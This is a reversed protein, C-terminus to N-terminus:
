TTLYVLMQGAELKMQRVGRYKSDRFFPHDRLDVTLYRDSYMFYPPRILYTENFSESDVPFVHMVHFTLQSQTIALPKLSIKVSRDRPAGFKTLPIIGSVEITEKFIMVNIQELESIEDTLAQALQQETLTTAVSLRKFPGLLKQRIEMEQEEWGFHLLGKLIFM